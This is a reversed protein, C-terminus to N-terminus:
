QIKLREAEVEFVESCQDEIIATGRDELIDIVTGVFANRHLDTKDLKPEPVQVNQFKEILNGHKDLM